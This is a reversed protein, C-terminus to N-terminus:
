NGLMQRHRQAVTCPHPVQELDMFILWKQEPSTRIWMERLLIFAWVVSFLQHLQYDAQDGTWQNHIRTQNISKTFVRCSKACAPQWATGNPLPMMPHSPCVYGTITKPTQIQFSHAIWQNQVYEVCKQAKIFVRIRVTKRILFPSFLSDSGTRRWRGFFSEGQVITDLFQM